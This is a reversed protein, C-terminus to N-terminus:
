KVIESVRFNKYLANRSAMHRLGIRGKEVPPLSTNKWHCLKKKGPGIIEMYLDNGYKIVTIRRTIGPQFLGTQFYDPELDTGDLGRGSEPMYRRARIYDNPADLNTNGFAAYSIHYTNMHNFYMRM